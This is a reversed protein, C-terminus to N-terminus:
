VPSCGTQPPSHPGSALVTGAPRRTPATARRLAAGARGKHEETVERSPSRPSKGAQFTSQPQLTPATNSSRPPAPAEPSPAPQVRSPRAAGSVESTGPRRSSGQPLRPPACGKEHRERLSVEEEEGAALGVPQAVYLGRLQVPPYDQAGRTAPSLVVSDCFPRPQPARQPDGLGVGQGLLTV